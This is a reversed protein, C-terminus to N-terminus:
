SGILENVIASVLEMSSYSLAREALHDLCNIGLCLLFYGDFNDLTLSWKKHLGLCLNAEQCVQIFIIVVVRVVNNAEMGCEHVSVMLADDEFHEGEIEVFEELISM